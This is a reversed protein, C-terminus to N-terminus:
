DRKIHRNVDHDDIDAPDDTSIPFVGDSTTIYTKTDKPQDNIVRVMKMLTNVAKTLYDESVETEITLGPRILPHEVKITYKNNM